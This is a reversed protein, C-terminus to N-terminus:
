QYPAWGSRGTSVGGKGVRREESRLNLCSMISFRTRAVKSCANACGDVTAQITPRRLVWAQFARDSRAIVAVFIVAQLEVKRSRPSQRGHRCWLCAVARCQSEM